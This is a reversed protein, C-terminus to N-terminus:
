KLFFKLDVMNIEKHIMYMFNAGKANTGFPKPPDKEYFMLLCALQFATFCVNCMVHIIVLVLVSGFYRPESVVTPFDGHVCRLPFPYLNLFKFWFM